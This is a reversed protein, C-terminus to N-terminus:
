ESKRKGFNTQAGFEITSGFILGVDSKSDGRNEAYIEAFPSLTLNDNQIAKYKVGLTARVVGVKRTSSTSPLQTYEGQVYTSLKGKEAVVETMVSSLKEEGWVQVFQLLGYVVWEGLEYTADLGLSVMHNEAGTGQPNRVLAYAAFAHVGSDGLPKDIKVAGSVSDSVRDGSLKGFDFFDKVGFSRTLEVAKQETGDFISMQVTTGNELVHATEIFLRESLQHVEDQLSSQSVVSGAPQMFAVTGVGATIFLKESAKITAALNEIVHGTSHGDFSSNRDSSSNMNVNRQVLAELNFLGFFEIKGTPSTLRLSVVPRDLYVKYANDRGSGNKLLSQNGSVANASAAFEASWGDNSEAEISAAHALSSTLSLGVGLLSLPVSYSRYKFVSM